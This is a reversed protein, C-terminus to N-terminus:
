GIKRIKVNEITNMICNINTETGFCYIGYNTQGTIMGIAALLKRRSIAANLEGSQQNGADAFSDLQKQM